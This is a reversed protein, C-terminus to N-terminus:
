HSRLSSVSQIRIEGTLSFVEISAWFGSPLLRPATFVVEAENPSDGAGLEYRIEGKPAYASAELITIPKDAVIRFAPSDFDSDMIIQVSATYVHVLGGSGYPQVGARKIDRTEM